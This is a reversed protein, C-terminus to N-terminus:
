GGRWYLGFSVPFHGWYGQDTIGLGQSYVPIYILM